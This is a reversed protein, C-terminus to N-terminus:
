GAARPGGRGGGKLGGLGRALRRGRTVEVETRSEAGRAGRWFRRRLAGEVEVVDGPAWSLAQRRVGARWAACDFTDVTPAVPSGPPRRVPRTRSVVVRFTVLGDGSPLVREEARAALRGVLVVENRPQPDARVAAVM